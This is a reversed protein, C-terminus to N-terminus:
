EADSCPEELRRHKREPADADDAAAAAPPELRVVIARRETVYGRWELHGDGNMYAHESGDEDYDASGDFCKGHLNALDGNTVIAQMLYSADSGGVCMRGPFRDRPHMERSEEGPTFRTEIPRIVVIHRKQGEGEDGDVRVDFRDATWCLADGPAWGNAYTDSKYRLTAVGGLRRVRYGREALDDLAASVAGFTATREDEVFVFDHQALTGHECLMIRSFFVRRMMAERFAPRKEADAIADLATRVAKYAAEKGKDLRDVERCGEEGQACADKLLADLCHEDPASM